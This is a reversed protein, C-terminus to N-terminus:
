AAVKRRQWLWWAGGLLLPIAVVLAAAWAQDIGYGTQSMVGTARDPELGYVVAEASCIDAFALAPPENEAVASPSSDGWVWGQVDGDRVQLTAAGANSYRWGEPFQQWYTWYFCTGSKCQCFCDTGEGCGQGDVSCVSAGMSTVESRVTFGGRALLEFGSIGDEPFGVCRSTASGDAHVVVLGARSAVPAPSQAHLPTSTMVFLSVAAVTIGLAALFRESTASRAALKKVANLIVVHLCNQFAVFRLFM